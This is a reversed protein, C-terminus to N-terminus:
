NQYCRIQVILLGLYQFLIYYGHIWLIFSMANKELNLKMKIDWIKGIM